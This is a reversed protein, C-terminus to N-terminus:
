ASRAARLAICDECDKRGKADAVSLSLKRKGCLTSGGYEFAVHKLGDDRLPRAAVYFDSQLDALRVARPTVPGVEGM